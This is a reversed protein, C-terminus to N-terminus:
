GVDKNKLYCTVAEFINKYVSTKKYFVPPCGLNTEIFHHGKSYETGTMIHIWNGEPIEIRMKRVKKKIVPNVYLDEGILFAQDSQIPYYYFLPRIMPINNDQYENEVAQFYPKLLSHVNTFKVTQKIIDEDSDFQINIWPKNGEHSRMVLTFTNM